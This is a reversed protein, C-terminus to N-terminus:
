RLGLMRDLEQRIRCALRQRPREPFPLAICGDQFGRGLLEDPFCRCEVRAHLVCMATPSCDQLGTSTFDKPSETIGPVVEVELADVQGDRAPARRVSEGIALASVSTYLAATLDEVSRCRQGLPCAM